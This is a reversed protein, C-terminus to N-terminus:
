NTWQISLLLIQKQIDTLPIHTLMLDKKQLVIYSALTLIGEFICIHMFWMFQLYILASIKIKPDKWTSMFVFLEFEWLIKFCQEKCSPVTGASSKCCSCVSTFFSNKSVLCMYCWPETKTKVVASNGSVRWLNRVHCFYRDHICCNM